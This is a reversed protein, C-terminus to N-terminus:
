FLAAQREKERVLLRKLERAAEPQVKWLSMAGKAPISPEVRVVNELQYAWRGPAFWGLSLERPRGEALLRGRVQDAPLCDVLECVAVIRGRPLEDLVVGMEALLERFPYRECMARARRKGGTFGQSAHIALPGRHDLPYTRTEYTKYGAAILSAWPQLITL